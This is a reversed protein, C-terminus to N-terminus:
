PTGQDSLNGLAFTLEQILRISKPTPRGMQKLQCQAAQILESVTSKGDGTVELPIREYASIVREGLVVVRYDRGPCVQEILLVDTRGFIRAATERIDDERYAKTVFAGQSLNNPKIFVPFGLDKAYAIAEEVGRQKDVPLNANLTESFFTKNTPANLGHKRIFYSTYGKDKAIETSGAPNVNFNTNRFLHRKGCPFVLEGAFKYEPELEVQIGLQPAIEAILLSAFPYRMSKARAHQESALRTFRAM